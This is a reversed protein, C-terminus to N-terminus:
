SVVGHAECLRATDVRREVGYKLSVSKERKGPPHHVRPSGDSIAISVLREARPANRRSSTESLALELLIACTAYGSTPSGNEIHVSDPASVSRQLSGVSSPPIVRATKGSLSYRRSFHVILILIM